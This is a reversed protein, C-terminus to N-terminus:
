HRPRHKGCNKDKTAESMPRKVLSIKQRRENDTEQEDGGPEVDHEGSSSVFAKHRTASSIPPATKPPM